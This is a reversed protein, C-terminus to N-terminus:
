SIIMKISFAVVEVIVKALTATVIAKFFQKNNMIYIQKLSTHKTARGGKYIDRLKTLLAKDEINNDITGYM